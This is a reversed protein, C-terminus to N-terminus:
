VNVKVLQQLFDKGHITEPKQGAVNGHIASETLVTRHSRAPILQHVNKGIEDGVGDVGHGFSSHQSDLRPINLVHPDFNMEAVAAHADAGLIQVPDELREEGGLALATCPNTKPNGPLQQFFAATGDTQLALCFERPIPCGDGDIKGELRLAPPSLCANCAVWADIRVISPPSQINSGQCWEHADSRKLGRGAGDRWFFDWLLLDLRFFVVTSTTSSSRRIASVM